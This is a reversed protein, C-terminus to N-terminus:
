KFLNVIFNWFGGAVSVAAVNDNSTSAIVAVNKSTTASGVISEVIMEQKKTGTSATAAASTRANFNSILTAEAVSLTLPTKCVIENIKKSTTIYVIGTSETKNWPSLVDNRYKTQFTRVAAETKADYRGSVEVDLKETNRLFAQLKAVQSADNDYDSRMYSTILPCSDILTAITTTTSAIIPASTSFNVNGGSGSPSGGGQVNNNNVTPPIFVGADSGNVNAGGVTFTQDANSSVNVDAGNTTDGGTTFGVDAGNTNAGGTTFPVEQGLVSIPVAFACIILAIATIGLLKYSINM